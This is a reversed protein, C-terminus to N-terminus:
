NSFRNIGIFLYYDKIEHYIKFNQKAGLYLLRDINKDLERWEGVDLHNDIKKINIQSYQIKTAPDEVKRAAYM